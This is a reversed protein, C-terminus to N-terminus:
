SCPYIIKTYPLTYSRFLSLTHAIFFYFLFYTAWYLTESIAHCLMCFSQYGALIKHLVVNRCQSFTFVRKSNHDRSHKHVLSGFTLHRLTVSSVGYPFDCALAFLTYLQLLSLSLSLALYQINFHM